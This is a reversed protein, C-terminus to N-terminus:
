GGLASLITQVNKCQELTRLQSPMALVDAAGANKIPQGDEGVRVPPSRKKVPAKALLTQVSDPSGYITGVNFGHPREKNWPSAKAGLAVRELDEQSFGEGLRAEVCAIQRRTFRPWSPCLERKWHELIAFVAAGPARELAPKEHSARAARERSPRHPKEDSEPSRSDPPASPSGGSIRPPPRPLPPPAAGGRPGAPSALPSFSLSSSFLEEHVTGILLPGTRVSGEGGTRVSGGHGYPGRGILCPKKELGKIRDALKELDLKYLSLNSHAVRGNPLLQGQRILHTEMCIAHKLQAVARTILRPSPIGTRECLARRSPWAFGQADVYGLLAALVRNANPPLPSSPLVRALIPLVKSASSFIPVSITDRKTRKKRSRTINPATTQSAVVGRAGAHSLVDPNAKEQASM